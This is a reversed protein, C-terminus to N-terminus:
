LRPRNREPADPSPAATALAIDRRLLTQSLHLFKFINSGDQLSRFYETQLSESQDFIALVARESPADEGDDGDLWIEYNESGYERATRSEMAAVSGPFKSEAERLLSAVALSRSASHEANCLTLVAVDNKPWEFLAAEFGLDDRFDGSMALALTSSTSAVDEIAALLRRCDAARGTFFIRDSTCSAAPFFEFDDDGHESPGLPYNTFSVLTTRAPAGVARAGLSCGDIRTIWLPAGDLEAEFARCALFGDNRSSGCYGFDDIFFRLATQKLTPPQPDTASTMTKDPLLIKM